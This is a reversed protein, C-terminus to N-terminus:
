RSRRASAQSSRRWRATSARLLVSGAKHLERMADIYRAAEQILMADPDYGFQEVCADLATVNLLITELNARLFSCRSGAVDGPTKCTARGDRTQV